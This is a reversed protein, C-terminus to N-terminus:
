EKPPETSPAEPPDDPAEGPAEPPDDPTQQFKSYMNLVGYCTQWNTDPHKLAAFLFTDMAMLEEDNFKLTKM